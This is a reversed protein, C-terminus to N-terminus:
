LTDLRSRFLVFILLSTVTLKDSQVSVFAPKCDFTAPNYGKAAILSPVDLPTTILGPTVQQLTPTVLGQTQGSVNQGFGSGLGLRIGQTQADQQNLYQSPVPPNPPLGSADYNGRAAYQLNPNSTRPALVREKQEWPDSANSGRQVHTFGHGHGVSPVNTGASSPGSKISGSDIDTNLSLKDRQGVGVGSGFGSGNGHGNGIGNDNRRIGSGQGIPAGHQNLRPPLTSHGAGGNAFNQNQQSPSAGSLELASLARQVDDIASSGNNTGGYKWENANSSVSWPSNRGLSSTPTYNGSSQNYANGQQQQQQQLLTYHYENDNYREEEQFDEENDLPSPPSASSAAHPREIQAQLTGSRRLNVAMRRPAGGTAGYTLSQNRRVNVEAPPPSATHPPFSPSLPSHGQSSGSQSDVVHSYPPM